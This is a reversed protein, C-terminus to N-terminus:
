DGKESGAKERAIDERILRVIYATKQNGLSDLKEIVDARTVKSLGLVFRRTGTKVYKRTARRKAESSAMVEEKYDESKGKCSVVHYWLNATPPSYPPIIRETGIANNTSYAM